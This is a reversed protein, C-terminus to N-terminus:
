VELLRSVSCSCNNNCSVRLPINGSEGTVTFFENGNAYLTLDSSTPSYGYAAEGPGVFREFNMDFTKGGADPINATYATNYDYYNPEANYLVADGYARCWSTVTNEYSCEENDQNFIRLVNAHYGYASQEDIVPFTLRARLRCTADVKTIQCNCQDDCKVDVFYDGNYTPNVFGVNPNVANAGENYVISYDTHSNKNKNKNHRFSRKLINSGNVKVVLNARSEATQANTLLVEEETFVHSVTIRYEGSNGNFIRVSERDKIQGSTQSLTDLYADGVHTCGWGTMNNGSFCPDSKNGKREVQVTDKHYATVDSADQPFKLDAKLRCTVDGPCSNCTVPCNQRAEPKACQSWPNKRVQRCRKTKFTNTEELFVQFTGTVDSCAFATSASSLFIVVLSCLSSYNFVPM